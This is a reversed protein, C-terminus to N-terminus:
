RWDGMLVFAAWYYPHAYEPQKMVKLQAAQLAAANSKGAALQSYFEVM